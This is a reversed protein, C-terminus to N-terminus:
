AESPRRPATCNLPSTVRYAHKMCVHPLQNSAIAKGEHGVLSLSQLAARAQYTGGCTTATTTPTGMLLVLLYCCYYCCYCKCLKLM